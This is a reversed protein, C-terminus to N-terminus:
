SASGIGRRRACSPMSTPFLPEDLLLVRPEYVLARCIAVRQQQGGSLQSPFRDALHGLGWAISSRRCGSKSTPSRSAACDLVTASMRRSRGIRGCRMPSSSSASTASSRRFRWNREGDLVTKGGIVIQGVEPQELGAVCRLLTTKGSGSAGLLAVISGRQRFRPAKSFRCAASGNRSIASM